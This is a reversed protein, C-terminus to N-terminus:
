KVIGKKLIINAYLSLESTIIIAYAESAREYFKFRELKGVAFPEGSAKLIKKYKGWINPTDGTGTDMFIVNNDVYTDLPFFRLIAELIEPIGHGDARIVKSGVSEAPFNGDAVVIEDGHGMELLTKMLEPSIVSPIGKLM